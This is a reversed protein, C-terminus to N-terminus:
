FVPDGARLGRGGGAGALGDHRDRRQRILRDGCLCDLVHRDMEGRALFLLQDILTTMHESEVKIASVAEDLVKPDSKGWRDLMDAYGHIVAIPTRLEHSADDVFRMQKKKEDELRRLMNNLASELGELEVQHFELKEGSDEVDDIEGIVRDLDLPPGDKERGEAKGVRDRVRDRVKDRDATHREESLREAMDAM